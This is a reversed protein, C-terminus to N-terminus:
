AADNDIILWYGHMTITGCIQHVLHCGHRRRDVTACTVLVWHRRQQWKRSAVPLKGIASFEDFNKVRTPLLNVHLQSCRVAGSFTETETETETVIRLKIEGGEFYHLCLISCSLTCNLASVPEYVSVTIAAAIDLFLVAPLPSTLGWAFAPTPEPVPFFFISFGIISDKNFSGIPNRAALVGSLTV